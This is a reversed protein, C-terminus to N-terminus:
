YDAFLEIDKIRAHVALRFDGHSLALNPSYAPDNNLIDQWQQKMYHLEKSFRAQKEPTDESGRTASEHHYLEAFPTWVNRYGAARVRLCFDVDNFAIQLDDENLGGVEEYVSKRIVLCAATVASFSQMLCARGFYGTHGKLIEIHAHGAIGADGLGLIIGGHQLRDNAYWLRAGVAGVQPQLAIGVMESLWEPSIVELDNNLLGVVDGRALNVALNNLASFNFPRDDRVVRVHKNAQVKEFYQLTAQDDSGNDVIIIEYYPYTTKSLISEVCQWILELGNRTPIILSVLPPMKPLAYHTRYGYNILESRAKIKLRQFHETLAREGALMAYPKADSSHSTSESHVRWHYLVRPIHHIQEAKIHEICRLALDYDQSGELGERFGGVKNVLETSYVGLHSFLNHSYFLDVNWECKFYPDFRRDLEDIKDEDSYIMRADPHQNIADAVWFLAHDALLDDHDLLAIWAGTVLKLASNSAASIHGNQPRFVVKIRPDERVFKELISRIAPDTSADDAICLEWHPYIQKRVSEIAKLLWEHNANYTPMVISILPRHALSAIYKNMGARIKDTYTDNVRIWQVYDKRLPNITENHLFILHQRLGELGNEKITSLAASVAERVGGSRDLAYPAVVGLLRMRKLNRELFADPAPLRGERKGYKIYHEYPDMGSNAVDPNRRLYWKADFHKGTERKKKM